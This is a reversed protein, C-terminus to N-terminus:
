VRIHAFSQARYDLGCSLDFPVKVCQRDGSGNQLRQGDWRPKLVSWAKRVRESNLSTGLKEQDKVGM